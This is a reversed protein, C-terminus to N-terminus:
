LNIIYDIFEALAGDACDKTTIYDAIEKLDDPSDNVIAGIGAAEIMELDNYYNGIACVNSHPIDLMDALKLIATGKDTYTTAFEMFVKSTALMRLDDPKNKEAFDRIEGIKDESEEVIVKQWPLDLVDELDTLDYEIHEYSLHNIVTENERIVFLDEDSFVEIGANPFREMILKLFEKASEPFDVSEVIKERDYDYFIHGNNVIIPCNFDILKTIFEATKIGRGTAVTFKGGLNVFKEIAEKNVLPLNDQNKYLTGDMDAVLLYDDLPKM